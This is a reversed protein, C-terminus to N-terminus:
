SKVPFLVTKRMACGSGILGGSRLYEKAKKQLSTKEPLEDWAKKGQFLWHYFAEDEPYTRLLVYDSIFRLIGSDPSLMPPIAPSLLWSTCLEMKPLGLPCLDNRYKTFFLRAKEYSERLEADKLVADSPIHVHLVPDNEGAPVWSPFEPHERQNGYEYELTGLRFIRGCFNRWIWWCRDFGTGGNFRAYDNLTRPMVRLTDRCVDEPWGKERFLEKTRYAAALFFTYAGMGNEAYPQTIARASRSGEEASEPLVMMQLEKQLRDWPLSRAIQLILGASDEPVSLEACMQAVHETEKESISM